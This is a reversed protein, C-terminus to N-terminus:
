TRLPRRKVPRPPNLRRVKTAMFEHHEKVPRYKVGGVYTYPDGDKDGRNLDRESRGEDKAILDNRKWESDGIKICEPHDERKPRPKRTREVQESM